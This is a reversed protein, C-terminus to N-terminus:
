YIIEMAHESKQYKVFLWLESHTLYLQYVPSLQLFFVFVGFGAMTATRFKVINM